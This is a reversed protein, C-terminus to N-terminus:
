GGNIDRFGDNEENRNFPWREMAKARGTYLYMNAREGAVFIKIGNTWLTHYEV